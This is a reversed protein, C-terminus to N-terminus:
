KFGGSKLSDDVFNKVEPSERVDEERPKEKEEKQPEPRVPKEKKGRKFFLIVVGAVGILVLVAVAKAPTAGPAVVAGTVSSIGQVAKKAASREDSVAVDTYTNEGSSIAYTGEPLEKFLDIQYEEGPALDVSKKIVYGKEEKEATIIIAEDYDVNGTNTYSFKRGDFEVAAQEVAAVEIDDAQSFHLVTTELEYKGPEASSDPAFKAEEGTMAGQEFIVEDGYAIRFTASENMENGAQDLLVAILTIEEGPKVVKNSIKVELKTPVSVINMPTYNEGTNGFEDTVKVALPAYGPAIDKATALVYSEKLETEWYQNSLRIRVDAEEPKYAGFSLTIEINEGPKVESIDSKVIIPYNSSVKFSDSESQEILSNDFGCLSAKVVCDGIAYKSLSIAPPKVNTTENAILSVPMTYYELGYDGCVLSVRFIGDFVSESSVSYEAELAQGLSYSEMLDYEQLIEASAPFAMAVALLFAMIASTKKSM